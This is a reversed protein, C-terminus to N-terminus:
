LGNSKGIPLYGLMDAYEIFEEAKNRWWDKDDDAMGEWTAKVPMMGLKDLGEEIAIKQLQEINHNFLAIAIQERM